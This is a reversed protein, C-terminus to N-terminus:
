AIVFRRKGLAKARYLAEDAKEYLANFTSGHEPAFAIGMSCSLTCSQGHHSFHGNELELFIQEAKKCALAREPLDCLLIAFEDGGLRGILDGKRFARKLKNAFYVLAADGFLHGYTDNVQKFDDIDLMIFAFTASSYQELTQEILKHATSRNLLGTLPDCEARQRLVIENKKEEDIDKLYLLACISATDESQFLHATTRIWKVNGSPDKRQYECTLEHQGRQYATILAQPQLTDWVVTRDEPLVYQLIHEELLVSYKTTNESVSTSLWNESAKTIYGTTLDVEFSAVMSGTISTRLQREQRYQLELKKEETVDHAVFIARLPAGSDNVIPTGIFELWYNSTAKTNQIHITQNVKRAGNQIKKFMDFFIAADEQGVIGSAVLSAPVDRIVTPFGFSQKLLEAQYDSQYATQTLIDYEWIFSSTQAMALRYREESLELQREKEKLESVDSSTSIYGIATGDVDYLYSMSIRLFRGQADQAQINTIGQLFLDICCAYGQQMPCFPFDSCHKGISEQLGVGTFLQAAKNLYLMKKDLDTVIVPNPLAELISHYYGELAIHRALDAIQCDYYGVGNEVIYHGQEYVQLIKGSKTQLRYNLAFFDGKKLQEAMQQRVNPVDEALMLAFFSNHFLQQIEEKTYGIWQLFGDSITVFECADTALFKQRGIFLAGPIPM